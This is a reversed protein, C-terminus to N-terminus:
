RPKDKTSQAIIYVIFATILLIASLVMFFLLIGLAWPAESNGEGFAIIFLFFVVTGFAATFLASLLLKRWPKKAPLSPAANNQTAASKDTDAIDSNETERGRLLEDVTVGLLDALPLLQSSEPLCEGNEWKSVAKNSVNLKDAIDQQTLKLAKRRSHLIESLKNM